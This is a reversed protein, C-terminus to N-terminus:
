LLNRMKRLVVDMIKLFIDQVTDSTDPIIDEIIESAGRHYNFESDGRVGKVTYDGYGGKAHEVIGGLLTGGVDLSGEPHSIKAMLKMKDSHTQEIMNQVQNTRPLWKPNPRNFTGNFEIIRDMKGLWSVFEIEETFSVIEYGSHADSLFKSFAGIFSHRRIDPPQEEFALIAESPKNPLLHLVFCSVAGESSDRELTVFDSKAEDYFTEATLKNKSFGLRGCLFNDHSELKSTRWVRHYRNVKENPDLAKILGDRIDHAFWSSQQAAIVKALGIHRKVQDFPM